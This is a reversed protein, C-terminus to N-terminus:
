NQKFIWLKELARTYAIYKENNSMKDEIVIVNNYEVGKAQEIDILIVEKLEKIAAYIKSNLAINKTKSILVILKVKEDKLIEYAFNQLTDENISIVESGELGIPLMKLKFNKNTFETIQITNRYNRNLSFFNFSNFISDALWININLEDTAQNIDGYLNFTSKEFIKLLWIYEFNSLLQAEDISIHKKVNNLPGRHINLLIIMGLLYDRNGYTLFDSELDAFKTKLTLEFILKLQKESPNEISILKSYISSLAEYIIDNEKNYDSLNNKIITIFDEIKLIESKNKLFKEKLQSIKAKVMKDASKNNLSNNENNLGYNEVLISFFHDISKILDQKKINYEPKYGFKEWNLAINEVISNLNKFYLFVKNESSIKKKIIKEILSILRDENSVIDLIDASKIALKFERRIEDFESMDDLTVEFEKKLGINTLKLDDLQTTISENDLKLEKLRYILSEKDNLDLNDVNNNYDKKINGFHALLTKINEIFRKYNEKKFELKLGSIAIARTYNKIDLEDIQTLHRQMLREKVDEEFKLSHIYYSVKKNRNFTIRSDFSRKSNLYTNYIYLYFKEITYEQVDSIELSIKLDKMLSHLFPNPSVIIFDSIKLNQNNYFLYSLRHTLIMTKGSGACGQVIFNKNLDQSIIEYQEFQISKIINIFTENERRKDLISLLLPDIVDSISDKRIDKSYEDNVTIIKSKEIVINRRLTCEYNQNKIIFDKTNKQYYIDGYASRWDYIYQKNPTYFDIEGIYYNNSNNNSILHLKAFYPDSLIKNIMEIENSNFSYNNRHMIFNAYDDKSIGSGNEYGEKASHIDEQLINKKKMLVDVIYELYLQEEKLTNRMDFHENTYDNRSGNNGM